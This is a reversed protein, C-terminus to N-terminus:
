LVQLLICYEFLISLNESAHQLKRFCLTDLLVEVVRTSLYPYGQTQTNDNDM